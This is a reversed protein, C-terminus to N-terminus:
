GSAHREVERGGSELLWVSAGDGILERAVSIGAPGAGVICVDADIQQDSALVRADSLM